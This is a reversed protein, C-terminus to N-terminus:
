FKGKAIACESALIDFFRPINPAVGVYRGVSEAGRNMELLFDLLDRYKTARYLICFAPPDSM